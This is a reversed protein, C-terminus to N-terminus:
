PKYLITAGVHRHRSLGQCAGLLWSSPLGIVFLLLAEFGMCVGCAVKCSKKLFRELESFVVLNRLLGMVILTGKKKNNPKLYPVRFYFPCVPVM